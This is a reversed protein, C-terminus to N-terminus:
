NPRFVPKLDIKPPDEFPDGSPLFGAGGWARLLDALREELLTKTGWYENLRGGDAPAGAGSESYLRWGAGERWCRIFAHWHTTPNDLKLM